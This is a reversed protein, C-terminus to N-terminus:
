PTVSRLFFGAVDARHVYRIHFEGPTAVGDPAEVYRTEAIPVYRDLMRNV